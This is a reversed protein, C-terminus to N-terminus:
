FLVNPRPQPTLESEYTPENQGRLPARLRAEDDPTLLAIVAQARSFARDLIDGIYPSAHGTAQVAEAWELPHLGIARLFRFLNNRAELDRGHIVFVTRGDGVVTQNAQSVATFREARPSRSTEAIRRSRVRYIYWRRESWGRLRVVMVWCEDCPRRTNPKLRHLATRGGFM